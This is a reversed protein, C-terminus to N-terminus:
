ARNKIKFACFAWVLLSLGLGARLGFFEPGFWRYDGGFFLYNEEFPCNKPPRCVFGRKVECFLTSIM